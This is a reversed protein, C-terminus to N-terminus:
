FHIGIGAKLDLNSTMMLQIFLPWNIVDEGDLVIGGEAYFQKRQSFYLADDGDITYEEDTVQIGLGIAVQIYRSLFYALQFTGSYTRLENEEIDYPYHASVQFAAGVGIKSVGKRGTKRGNRKVSVSPYYIFGSGVEPSKVVISHISWYLNGSASSSKKGNKNNASCTVPDFTRVFIQSFAHGNTMLMITLSM